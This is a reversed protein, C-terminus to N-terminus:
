SSEEQLTLTGKHYGDVITDDLQLETIYGSRTQGDNTVKVLSGSSWATMLLSDNSTAIVFEVETSNVVTGIVQLYLAGSLSHNIVQTLSSNRTTGIIYPTIERGLTSDYLTDM